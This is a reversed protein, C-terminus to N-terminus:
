HGAVVRPTAVFNREEALPHICAVCGSDNISRERKNPDVTRTVRFGSADKVQLPGVGRLSGRPASITEFRLVCALKEFSELLLVARHRM